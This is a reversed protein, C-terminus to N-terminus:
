SCGSTLGHVGCLCTEAACAVHTAAPWRMQKPQAGICSATAHMPAQMPLSGAGWVGRAGRSGVQCKKVWDHVASSYQPYDQAIQKVLEKSIKIPTPHSQQM